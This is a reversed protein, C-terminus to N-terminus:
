CSFPFRHYWDHFCCICMSHGCNPLVMKTSNEMCIGCEDEREIDNDSLKRHQGERHQNRMNHDELEVFEGQLQRLSPYIVAAVPKLWLFTLFNIFSRFNWTNYSYLKFFLGYFERLTAKREVSSISPIGDVYVQVIVYLKTKTGKPPCSLISIFLLIVLYWRFVILSAILVM